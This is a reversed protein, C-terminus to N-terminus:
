GVPGTDSNGWLYKNNVNEIKNKNKNSIFDILHQYECFVISIWIDSEYLDKYELDPFYMHFLKERTSNELYKSKNNVFEKISTLDSKNLKGM